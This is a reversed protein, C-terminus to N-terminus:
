DFENEIRTLETSTKEWESLIKELETKINQFELTKERATEANSYTEPLALEKELKKEKEELESIKEELIKIKKILGKTASYKKQRLEAEIRKQDKRNILDNNKASERQENEDNIVARKSLFYEIGGEFYQISGKRIEVVKNV